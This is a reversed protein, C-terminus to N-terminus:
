SVDGAPVSPVSVGRELRLDYPLDVLGGGPRSSSVIFTVVEERHDLVPQGSRNRAVSAAAHYRGPALWNDFGLRLTMEEGPAFAGSPPTDWVSSGGFVVNRDANLVTLGFYPDTVAENFRVQVCLVSRTGQNVGDAREGRENEMWGDVIEAAGDGTRAPAAPEGDQAQKNFNLDFYRAAVRDSADLMIPKGRELLLARDCFRQVSQMDHTVFLVTRREERLRDFEDYCKQQFSADGVALVEDILLIDADVQIMVSFALRVLM